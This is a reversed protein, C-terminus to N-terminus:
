ASNIILSIIILWRYIICIFDDISLSKLFNNINLIKIKCIKKNETAKISEYTWIRTEAFLKRRASSRVNSQPFACGM